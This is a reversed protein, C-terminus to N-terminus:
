VEVLVQANKLSLLGDLRDEIAQLKEIEKQLEVENLHAVLDEGTVEQAAQFGRPKAVERRQNIIASQWKALINKKVPLVERRWVLWDAIPMMMDEVQVMETENAQRIASRIKVQRKFLDEIAQMEEAIIKESGGQNGLPDLRDAPRLLNNGVFNFKSKIKNAVLKTEALAETITMEKEM